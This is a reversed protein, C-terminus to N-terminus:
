DQTKVSIQAMNNMYPRLREPIQISGDPQQYNELIAIPLRSLAIATGNLTHVYQKKGEADIYKTHLRRAQYDTCNSTSTVEGWDNKFPMWAEVDYKRYAPGGLDGTCIDVVRYPIGLGQMIKEEMDLLHQHQAESDEPRCFVFMEVKTFQHVRYLGRSERGYAGAETRFCHSLAIIKLPKDLEGQAFVHNQYYGAVTIEATAILSLEENEINYIQTEKGRPNFGTGTLVSKYALDPTIMPTFGEAIATNMAYQILALELQVAENKLYYFGSGAVDAGREFDLLDLTTGLEIHDRPTFDFPTPEGCRKIEVNESDDKGFPSDAHTMNPIQLMLESFRNQIGSLEEELAAIKQKVQKGQEVLDPNGGKSQKMQEAIQNREARFQDIEHIRNRVEEDAHLLEEINVHIGRKDANQQVFEPNQRIFHIDLM